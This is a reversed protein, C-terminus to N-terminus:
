RVPVVWLHNTCVQSLTHTGDQVIVVLSQDFSHKEVVKVQAGLVCQIRNLYCLLDSDGDSVRVIHYAQGVEASALLLEHVARTPLRGEADPIPAGHPDYEPFGLMAEMKTILNDSVAHELQEAEAHVEEWSYQMVNLLFTEIIRHRRVMYTGKQRGKDTLIVGKYPKHTIYGKDALRKLMESVSAASIDLSESIAHTKIVTDTGQELKYITKLYDESRSEM